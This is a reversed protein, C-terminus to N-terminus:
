FFEWEEGKWVPKRCISENPLVLRMVHRTRLISRTKPSPAQPTYRFSISSTMDDTRSSISRELQPFYESVM